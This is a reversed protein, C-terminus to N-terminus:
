LIQITTGEFNLLKLNPLRATLSIPFNEIDQFDPPMILTFFKSHEVLQSANLIESVFPTSRAAGRSVNLYTPSFLGWFTPLVGESTKNQGTRM